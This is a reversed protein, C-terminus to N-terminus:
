GERASGKTALCPWPGPEKGALSWIFCCREKPRATNPELNGFRASNPSCIQRTWIPVYIIGMKSGQLPDPLKSSLPTAGSGERWRGQPGSALSNSRTSLEMLSPMLLQKVWLGQGDDAEWGEKIPSERSALFGM